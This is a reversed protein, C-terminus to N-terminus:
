NINWCNAPRSLTDLRDDTTSSSTTSKPLGVLGDPDVLESEEGVDGMDEIIGDALAKIEQEVNVPDVTTSMSM